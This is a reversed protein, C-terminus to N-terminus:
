LTKSWTFDRVYIGLPNKRIEEETTASTPPVLYVAALGRMRYQEVRVGQRNWVRETWIIEWTEPTQRLVSSIEVGVSLEEARKGPSTVPDKMYETIKVTAPDGSQLLAYVRWIADNQANRDFSVMRVDRIFAALAAHIIREDAAPARDARKVAAAQGLKDVEVVYPIFTSRSALHILGGVAGLAILLAILAVAQWIRRSAIIAGAHENWARRANLYPNADIAADEKKAGRFPDTINM